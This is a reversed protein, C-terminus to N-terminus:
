RGAGLTRVEKFVKGNNGESICVEIGPVFTMTTTNATTESPFRHLFLVGNPLNMAWTDVRLSTTGYPSTVPTHHFDTWAGCPSLMPDNM